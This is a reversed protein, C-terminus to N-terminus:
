LPHGTGTAPVTIDVTLGAELNEHPSAALWGPDITQIPESLPSTTILILGNSDLSMMQKQLSM